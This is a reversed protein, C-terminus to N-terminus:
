PVLVIYALFFAGLLAAATLLELMAYILTKM